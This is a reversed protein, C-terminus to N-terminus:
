LLVSSSMARFAEQRQPQVFSLSAEPGPSHRSPHLPPPSAFLHTYVVGAEGCGASLAPGGYPRITTPPQTGKRVVSLVKDSLSMGQKLEPNSCRRLGGAPSIGIVPSFFARVVKKKFPQSKATVSTPPILM